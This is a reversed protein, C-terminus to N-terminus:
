TARGFVLTHHAEGRKWVDAVQRRGSRRAARWLAWRSLSTRYSQHGAYTPAEQSNTRRAVRQRHLLVFPADCALIRDLVPRWDAIVEILGAAVVVDFGDLVLGEDLVDGVHFEHDPWEQRAVDVLEPAYDVGVYQYQGPRERDLMPAYHGTGCGLELLRVPRSLSIRNLAELLLWFPYVDQAPQDLAASAVALM